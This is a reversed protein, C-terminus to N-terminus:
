KLTARVAAGCAKMAANWEADEAAASGDGQSWRVAVQEWQALQAVVAPDLRHVLAQYDMRATQLARETAETTNNTATLERGYAVLANRYAKAAEQVSELAARDYQEAAARRSENREGRALWVVVCQTVVTGTLTIGGGLVVDWGSM